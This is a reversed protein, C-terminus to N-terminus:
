RAGVENVALMAALDLLSRIVLQGLRELSFRDGGSLFGRGFSGLTIGVFGYQRRLRVILM